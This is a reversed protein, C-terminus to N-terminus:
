RRRAWAATSHAPPAAPMQGASGALLAAILVGWLRASFARRLAHVVSAVTSFPTM